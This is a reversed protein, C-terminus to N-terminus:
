RANATKLPSEAFAAFIYTAGSTNMAGNTNRIKIGNSVFDNDRAGAIATVETNSANPLLYRREYNYTDRQDDFIYWSEDPGSSLTVLFWAPRFGLNIMPGDANGNGAYSGFKSFGEVEAFCYAIYNNGSGNV